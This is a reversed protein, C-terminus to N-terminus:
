AEAYLNRTDAATPDDPYLRRMCDKWDRVMAQFEKDMMNRLENQVVRTYRPGDSPRSYQHEKFSPNMSQLHEKLMNARKELYNRETDSLSAGSVGRKARIDRIAKLRRDLAALDQVEFKVGQRLEAGDKIDQLHQEEAILAKEEHHSLATEEKQGIKM